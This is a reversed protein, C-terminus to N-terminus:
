MRVKVRMHKIFFADKQMPADERKVRVMNECVGIVIWTPKEGRIFVSEIVDGKQPKEGSEYSLETM